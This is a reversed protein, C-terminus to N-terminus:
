FCGVIAKEGIDYLFYGEQENWEKTRYEYSIWKADLRLAPVLQLSRKWGTKRFTPLYVFSGGTITYSNWNQLKDHYKIWSDIESKVNEKLNQEKEIKEVSDIKYNWASISVIGKSSYRVSIENESVVIGNIAYNGTEIPINNIVNRYIFTYETPCIDDDIRVDAAEEVKYGLDKLYFGIKKELESKNETIIESSVNTENGYYWQGEEEGYNITIGNEEDSYYYGQNRYYQKREEKVTIGSVKEVWEEMIKEEPLVTKIKTVKWFNKPEHNFDISEVITWEDNEKEVQYINGYANNVSRSYLMCLVVGFLAVGGAIRICKKM